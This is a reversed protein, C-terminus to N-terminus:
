RRKSSKPRTVIKTVVLAGIAVAGLGLWGSNIKAMQAANAIAQNLTRLIGAAGGSNQWNSNQVLLGSDAQWVAYAANSENLLTDFPNGFAWGRYNAATDPSLATTTISFNPTDLDLDAM